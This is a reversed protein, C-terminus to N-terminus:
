IGRDTTEGEFHEVYEESDGEGEKADGEAEDVSMSDGEEDVKRLLKPM